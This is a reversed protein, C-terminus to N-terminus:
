RLGFDEREGPTLGRGVRRTMQEIKEEVSGCVDCSWLRVIGDRKATVL